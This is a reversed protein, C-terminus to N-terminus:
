LLIPDGVLKYPRPQITTFMKVRNRPNQGAPASPPPKYDIKFNGSQMQRGRLGTTQTMNSFSETPVTINEM